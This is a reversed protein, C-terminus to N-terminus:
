WASKTSNKLKIKESIFFIGKSTFLNKKKIFNLCALVQIVYILNGIIKFKQANKSLIETKLKKHYKFNVNHTFGLKLILLSSESSILRFGRGKLLLVTESKSYM